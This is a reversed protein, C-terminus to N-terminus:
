EVQKEWRRSEGGKKSKSPEVHFIRSAGYTTGISEDVIKRGRVQLNPYICVDM